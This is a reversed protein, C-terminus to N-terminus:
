LMLCLNFFKSRVTFNVEVILSLLFGNYFMLVAHSMSGASRLVGSGFNCRGICHLSVSWRIIVVLLYILVSNM